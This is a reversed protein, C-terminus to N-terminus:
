LMILLRHLVIAMSCSFMMNFSIKDIFLYMKVTGTLREHSLKTFLLIPDCAQRLFKELAVGLM